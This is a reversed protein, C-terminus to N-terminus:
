LIFLNFFFIRLRLRSRLIARSWRTRGNAAVALVRDATERVARGRATLTAPATSNRSVQSLSEILKSTYTRQESETKWRIGDITQEEIRNDIRIKRRRKRNSLAM